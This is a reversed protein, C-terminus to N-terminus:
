KMCGIAIMAFLAITTGIITVIKESFSQKEKVFFGVVQFLFILVAFCFNVDLGHVVNTKMALSCVAVYVLFASVVLRFVLVQMCTLM